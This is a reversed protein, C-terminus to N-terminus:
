TFRHQIRAILFQDKNLHPNWVSSCYDLQPRVLSKYLNTLSEVNRYKITRSILGVMRNAKIYADNCQEAVKLDKSFIIGLDKESEVM